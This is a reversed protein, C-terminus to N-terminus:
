MVKKMMTRVQKRSTFLQAEVTRKSVNLKEAIDGVPMDDFFSMRYVKACAPSLREISRNVITLTEHYEAVREVNSHQLEMEYKKSEEMQHRFIRRRLVDKIKNAAITFAFSKVTTENIMGDFDMLKIFVEQVLDESEERNGIRATTFNVLEAYYATYFDAILQRQNNATSNM